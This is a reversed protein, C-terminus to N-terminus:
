DEGAAVVMSINGGSLGHANIISKRLRVRRPRQGVYDLDCDLDARSWNVTPPILNHRHAFATAILQLPGAAALPVGITGKISGVAVRYADEGFAAKIANTECRDLM